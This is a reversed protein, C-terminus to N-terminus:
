GSCFFVNSRGKATQATDGHAASYEAVSGLIQNTSLDVAFGSRQYTQYQEDFAYNEVATDEISGMGSQKGGQSGPNFKFPNLPGQVPALLVDATVNYKLEKQNHKLVNPQSKTVLAVSPAANVARSTFGPSSLVAPGTGGDDDSHYGSLLDM